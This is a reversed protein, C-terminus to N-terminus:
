ENSVRPRRITHTLYGMEEAVEGLGCFGSFPPLFINDIEEKFRDGAENQGRCGAGIVDEDRGAAGGEGERKNM